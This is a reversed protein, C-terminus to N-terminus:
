RRSYRGSAPLAAAILIKAEDCAPPLGDCNERYRQENM